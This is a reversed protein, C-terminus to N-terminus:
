YRLSFKFPQLAVARVPVGDRRAAVCRWEKVATLAAEDLRPIGSSTEVRAASVRGQEDLEVRLLVKGQEGIQRSTVPYVPPSRDPCSVSLEEHLVIPEPPFPPAM